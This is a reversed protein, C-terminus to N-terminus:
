FIWILLSNSVIFFTDKKKRFFVLHVKQGVCCRCDFVCHKRGATDVASFDMTAGLAPCHSNKLLLAEARQPSPPGHRVYSRGLQEMPLVDISPPVRRTFDKNRNTSCTGPPINLVCSCASGGYFFSAQIRLQESLRRVISTLASPSRPSQTNQGVTM